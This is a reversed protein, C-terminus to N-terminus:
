SLDKAIATKLAKEKKSRATLVLEMIEPPLQENQWKREANISKGPANKVAKLAYLAAGLSHDAMHATAVAHGVSRAVAIAAPTSSERAVAIALLSAERADGATANGKTWERAIFLANKLRKDVKEGYLPLVNEACDCAWKMLQRHQEKKLPGGRHEAIFRKDRM